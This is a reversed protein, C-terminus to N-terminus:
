FPLEDTAPVPDFPITDVPAAPAESVSEPLPAAEPAATPATPAAQGAALIKELKDQEVAKDPQYKKCSYRQKALKMFDVIM